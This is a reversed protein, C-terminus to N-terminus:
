IANKAQVQLHHCRLNGDSGTDIENVLEMGMHFIDEDSANMPVDM